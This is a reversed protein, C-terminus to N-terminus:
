KRLAEAPETRVLRYSAIGSLLLVAVFTAVVSLLLQVANISLPFGFLKCVVMGAGLLALNVATALSALLLNEARIMATIQRKSFGLASLLGLEHYRTGQLKILLVACIFLGIGLILVSIVLFLKTLCNFTNQFAHVEDSANVTNIGRLHLSNTVAVIDSFEKVDYSISYNSQPPLAKYIQQEIDAGLRNIPTKGVVIEGSYDTDFGALLNLLTTKGGGSAGMLCVIGKEPFMYSCHDLIVTDGYKKTINNIKIM